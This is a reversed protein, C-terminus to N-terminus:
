SLDTKSLTDSKDTFFGEPYEAPGSISPIADGVTKRVNKWANKCKKWGADDKFVSPLSDKSAYEGAAVIRMYDKGKKGRIYTYTPMYFSESLRVYGDDGRVAKLSVIMGEQTKPKNLATQNTFLNGLSYIVLAQSEVGGRDVTLLEIPQVCHSHSGMIVDAGYECLQKAVKKQTASPADAYESGWHIAIIIFEAGNEKLADIKPKIAALMTKEKKGCIDVCYSRSSSVSGETYSAFAAVGVKINNIEVIYCKKSDEKEIYSGVSDMDSKSVNLLTNKVGKYGKDCTHNNATVCLDVNIGKLAPLIEYPMNFVPFGSVSKNNGYADTPGELNVINLDSVLVNEFLSFYSTFDYTNKGTASAKRVTDHILVDGGMQITLSDPVPEPEPEPLETPSLIDASSSPILSADPESNSVVPKKDTIFQPINFFDLSYSVSVALVVVTLLVVLTKRLLHKKHM